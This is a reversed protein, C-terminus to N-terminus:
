PDRFVRLVWNGSKVKLVKHEMADRYARHVKQGRHVLFVKLDRHDWNEL